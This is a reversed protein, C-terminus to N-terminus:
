MEAMIETLRLELFATMAEDDGETIEETYKTLIELIQQQDLGLEMLVNIYGALSDNWEGADVYATNTPNERMDSITQQLSALQEESITPGSINLDSLIQALAALGEGEDDRLVVAARLLNGCAECPQLNPNLVLAQGVTIQINESTVGLESAAAQMLVPCGEIEPYELDPLPPIAALTIPESRYDFFVKGIGYPGVVGEDDTVQFTIFDRGVFDESPPTYIIERTDPDRELTGGQGTLLKDNVFIGLVEIDINDSDIQLVDFEDQYTNLDRLRGVVVVTGSENDYFLDIAVPLINTLNLNVTGTGNEGVIGQADTVQYQFSDTGVFGDSPPTYVFSGNVLTVTGGEATTLVGGVAGLLEITLDDPLTQFDDLIDQVDFSTTIDDGMHAEGSSDNAVPLKNTLTVTVDGTVPDAGQQGDSVAYTFTDDGVYGPDSPTYTFEGTIPNFEIITGFDPDDIISVLLDDIEGGAQGDPTDGYNVSGSVDSGMHGAGSGNDAYPGANTLTITVEGTAPAAGQQGDSVSYAFTDDGVYGTDTPTYTYEGTDPDFVLTGHDPDDTIVVTLDDVAGGDPTDGFNVSGDVPDNMHGGASGDDAFPLANTVTVTVIETAETGEDNSVTYTFTDTGVFGEDPSYIYDGNEDVTVSGNSPQTFGIVTLGDAPTSDNELVNGSIPDNMHGSGVDPNTIVPIPPLFPPVPCDVCPSVPDSPTNEESNDIEISVTASGDKNEDSWLKSSGDDNDNRPDDESYSDSTSTEAPSGTGSVSAKASIPLASNDSGSTGDYLAGNIKITGADVGPNELNWGAHVVIDIDATSGSGSESTKAQANIFVDGASTAPNAIDVNEGASICIDANTKIKGHADVKIIDANVVVDEVAILCILAKGVTQDDSPVQNTQSIVDGNVTLNGASIASIEVKSGGDIIMSGTTIDGGSEASESRATLLFIQGPDTTKDSSPVDTHIDGVTIGGSGAVMFINGGLDTTIDDDTDFTIGGSLFKTRFSMDGIGGQLGSDGGGSLTEVIIDGPSFMDVNIGADSMDEIWEEYITNEAPIGPLAGNAITMDGSFPGITLLGTFDSGNSSLDVDMAPTIYSGAIQISGRFDEDTGLDFRRNGDIDFIGNGQAELRADPDFTVIEPSSILINGGVPQGPGGGNVVANATTLSDAGLTVEDAATLIVSGGDGTDGADTGGDAHIEGNQIVRGAGGQVVPELVASFIDGAALVVQGEEAEITGTESNIVDGMGGDTSSVSTLEELKVVVDSGPEALVASDGAAMIVVGNESIISGHNEVRKALLAVGESGEIEGNNIIAGMDGVESYMSLDGITGDAFDGFLEDDVRLSSLIATRASIMGTPAVVIGLPNSIIINGNANLQGAIGSPLADTAQVNNLVWAGANVQSFNVASDSGIDFTNWEIM